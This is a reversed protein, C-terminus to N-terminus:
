KMEKLPALVLTKVVYTAASMRNLSAVKAKVLKSAQGLADHKFPGFTQVESSKGAGTIKKRIQLAYYM